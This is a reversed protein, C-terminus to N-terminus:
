RRRVIVAPYVGAFLFNKGGLAVGRLAHEAASNGIEVAGDDCYRKLAQWRNLAYLSSM